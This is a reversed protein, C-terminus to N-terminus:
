RIDEHCRLAAQEHTKAFETDNPDSAYYTQISRTVYRTIHELTIRSAEEGSPGGGVGDAVMGFTAMRAPEGSVFASEPLSTTLVRVQRALQAILFHDQNDKRVKGPHTLGHFDIEEDRPKPGALNPASDFVSPKAM